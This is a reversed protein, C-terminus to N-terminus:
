LIFDDEEDDEKTKAGWVHGEIFGNVSEDAELDADDTLIAVYEEDVGRFVYYNDENFYREFYEEDGLLYCLLSCSMVLDDHKGKDAQYKGGRNVFSQFQEITEKDRVEIKEEKFLRKMTALSKNRTTEVQHIGFFGLRDIFVKEYDLKTMLSKPISEDKNRESIELANNYMKCIKHLIMPADLVDIDNACVVASQTINSPSTVDWVVIATSDDKSGGHGSAPDHTVVYSHNPVPYEYIRMEHEHLVVMTEIPLVVAMRELIETSLLTGASGLFKCDYESDWFEQGKTDIIMKKFKEDRGPVEDWRIKKLVYSSVGQRIVVGESNVLSAESCIKYFHNMGNPTSTMLLQSHEGDTVVPFVADYFADFINPSIFASEDVYVINAGESRGADETTAVSSIKSGNEFEIEHENSKEIGEVMWLPLNKIFIKVEKIIKKAVSDKNALCLIVFNPEFLLKWVFYAVTGSTKGSRRPYLLTVFRNKMYLQIQERQYHRLKFLRLRNGFEDKDRTQIYLYNEVFYLIDDQCKSLEIMNEPTLLCSVDVGAKKLGYRNGNWVSMMDPNSDKVLTLDKEYQQKFLKLRDIAM